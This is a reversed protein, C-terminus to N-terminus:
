SAPIEEPIAERLYAERDAEWIARLEPEESMVHVPRVRFLEADALARPEIGEQLEKALRMMYRRMFIVAMDSTGLHERSRDYIRGMSETMAADQVRNTMMGSYNYTRQVERDIGYDNSSNRTQKWTGPELTIYPMNAYARMPESVVIWWSTEDDRPIVFLGGGGWQPNPISTFTPLVFPTVRWYYDGEERDRRGGYVFGFDTEFLQLRPANFNGPIRQAGMTDLTRHLFGIHATDINGELGQVWNSDQMWKYTNYDGTAQTFHYRPLEPQKEPPGMYIWILGGHEAGAYANIRVKTKFNSEAPESPMDVCTGSVDFKWGHYVCRLGNEENRGFFMSAGRHPCAQTFFGVRGESDRFAVLDEGLMRIRVPPCDPEPLEWTQMAPLWFRRFLEGMPTGPGVRTLLENDTTSLM